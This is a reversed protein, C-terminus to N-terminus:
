LFRVPIIQKTKEKRLSKNTYTLKTDTHAGANWFSSDSGKRSQQSGDYPQQSEFEPLIALVRLWQAM